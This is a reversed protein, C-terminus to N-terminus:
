SRLASADLELGRLWQRCQQWVQRHTETFRHDGGRIFKLEKPEGAALFIDRAEHAPVVEDNDGHIVFLPRPAIRAALAPIDYSQLDRLFQRKVWVEGDEGVLAIRESEATDPRVVSQFLRGPNAPAAWSCVARVREDGAAQAIATTGGFSRGMTAVPGTGNHECWGVVATLDSIQGTLTIDEFQGESRGNGAFDFLLVDFGTAALYKGMELAKGGGEKSGTFGHCVVLVPAGARGQSYLIGDLTQGRSNEIHVDKWGSASM